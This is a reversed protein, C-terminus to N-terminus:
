GCYITAMGEFEDEEYISALLEREQAQEEEYEM